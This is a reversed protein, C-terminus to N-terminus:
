KRAEYEKFKRYVWSVDGALTAKANAQMELRWKPSQYWAKPIQPGLDRPDSSTM